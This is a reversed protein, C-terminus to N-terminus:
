IVQSPIMTGNVVGAWGNISYPTTRRRLNRGGHDLSSNQLKRLFMRVPTSEGSINWAALRPVIEPENVSHTPQILDPTSPLLLPEEVLLDLLAPYWPQSLWVPAVLVIRSKQPCVQAVVRSILNWPPNAYGHCKTWDLSFADVDIANPDPRRSVYMPLLHTLRSAFLDVNMPGMRAFIEQFVDPHLMWDSRDKMVRSEDDTVTNLSGALHTAQLTIQRAMCWTWVEKTLRNLDPSM